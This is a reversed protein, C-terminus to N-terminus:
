QATHEAAIARCRDLAWAITGGDDGGGAAAEHITELGIRLQYCRLREVDKVRWPEEEEEFFRCQQEMCALWSRWFFVNAVDYLPDGVMAESWDVVATIRGDAAVVNNSGFDGHVLGRVNDCHSAYRTVSEIFPTVAALDVRDATTEWDFRDPDAITKLFDRWHVFPASGHADFPGFGTIGSVDKAAMADLVTALPRAYAAAGDGLAQLTEGTARVSVCIWTDALTALLRIRPVPLDPGSFAESCFRDKEFGHASRNVRAVLREAGSEFAFAQSEMGEAISTFGSVKGFRAELFSRVDERPVRPKRV